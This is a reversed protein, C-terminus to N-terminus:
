IEIGYGFVGGQAVNLIKNESYRVLNKGFIMEDEFVFLHPSFDFYKKKAANYKQDIYEVQATNVLEQYLWQGDPKIKKEVLSEWEQQSTLMGVYVDQGEAGLVPKLVLNDKEQILSDKEKSNIYTSTKPILKYIAEAEEKTFINTSIEKHLHMFLSKYGILRFPLPNFTKKSHLTNLLRFEKSGFMKHFEYARKIFNYKELNLSSSYRCVETEYGNRKFVAKNIEYEETFVLDPDLLILGREGKKVGRREMLEMYLDSHNPYTAPYNKIFHTSLTNYSADHLFLADPDADIEVIKFGNGTYLLDFRLVGLIKTYDADKFFKSEEDTLNLEEKLKQQTQFFSILKVISSYILTLDKKVQLFYDKDVFLPVYNIPTKQITAQRLPYCTNNAVPEFIEQINRFDNETYKNDFFFINRQDM